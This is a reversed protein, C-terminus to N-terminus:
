RALGLAPLVEDRMRGALVPERHPRLLELAHERYAAADGAAAGLGRDLAVALAHEDIADAVLGRDLERALALAEYAGASPVTALLAGAALAELQSHGFDERRSANVFVRARALLALWEARALTGAWEVGDPEPVGRRALWRLAATREIGGVVLRGRGRADWARCLLDLGRKSPDPAYAVADVDREPAQAIEEVPVPLVVVRQGERAPAAEAARASLPLLAAARGLVRRERARQWAGGLGPRNLAAPSDFRVAFRDPLRSLLAATVTSFVTVRAAQSGASRRAALAEVLDTVPPSRRLRAAAGIRV